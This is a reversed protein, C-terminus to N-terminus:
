GAMSRQLWRAKEMIKEVGKDENKGEVEGVCCRKMLMVRSEQEHDTV